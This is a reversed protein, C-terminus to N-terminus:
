EPDGCRTKASCVRRDQVEGEGVGAKMKMDEKKMDEKIVDMRRRRRVVINTVHEEEEKLQDCSQM